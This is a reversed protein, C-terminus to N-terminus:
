SRTSLQAAREVAEDYTGDVVVVRARPPSGHRAAGRARFAPVLVTAELGLLRAMRAVARGHNGDTACALTSMELREQLPARHIAWSAGLVKFSPLGLRSSEDKVM